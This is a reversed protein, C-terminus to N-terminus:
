LGMDKFFADQQPARGLFAILLDMPDKSGGKSLIEAVYKKGIEPSFKNSKIVEFLDLAYVKSWMYGYYKAGYGTLHGFSAYKHTGDAYSVNPRTSLSLDRTIADIDKDAGKKYFNLSMLSLYVQRQLFAGTDFHKIALISEVLADPLPEGTIYHSGVDKLVAKEFMWEELMQSPMEVFDTKVRTGAFSATKTRGLLGHLAHGFEHFFTTVDNRKLLSPKTATSKPFNAIVLSVVYPQSGDSLTVSPVINGHCAHTYKNPRPYLDILLYGLLKNTSADRAEILQVDEHWLGAIPKITFSLGMFKEYIHFLRQLTQEMPFYDALVREDLNYHKQKYQARVYAGDWPKMKGDSTLTVSAPLEAILEEFERQEKPSSRRLLESLFEEAVEPRKAMQDDISLHAFSEFGLLQALEDRKAIITKLVGENAPYARNEFAYFLRKRTEEVAGNEMVGFFTPYDITLIYHGDDTKKLAAIFDDDLGALDEKAVTISSNDAAINMEFALSLDSLDKKLAAVQARKDDPLDLGGRKFDAITETIFYRQEDSLPEQTTDAYAKIAEYLPKNNSINDVYFASIQKSAERAADRIAADPYVMSTLEAISHFIALPSFGCLQDLAHMTNEYTRQDAPVALIADLRTKADALASQTREQVDAATHPFLITLDAPTQLFGAHVPSVQQKKQHQIGIKEMITDKYFFSLIGSAILAAVIYNGFSMSYGQM